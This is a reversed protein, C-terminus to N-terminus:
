SAASAPGAASWSVVVTMITKGMGTNGKMTWYDLQPMKILAVLWARRPRQYNLKAPPPARVRAREVVVVM